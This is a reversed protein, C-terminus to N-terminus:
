NKPHRRRYNKLAQTIEMPSFGERLAKLLTQINAPTISRCLIVAERIEMPTFGSLLIRKDLDNDPTSGLIKDHGKIYTRLADRIERSNLGELIKHMEQNENPTQGLIKDLLIRHERIVELSIDLLEPYSKKGLEDSM